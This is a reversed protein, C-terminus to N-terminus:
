FMEMYVTEGTTLDKSYNCFWENWFMEAINQRWSHACNEAVCFRQVPVNESDMWTYSRFIGNLTTKMDEYVLGQSELVEKLGSVIKESGIMGDETLEAPTMDFEGTLVFVPIDSAVTTQNGTLAAAAFLDSCVEAMAKTMGGGNSQGTIYMRSRDINYEECLQEVMARVFKEEHAVNLNDESESTKWSHFPIGGDKQPALSGTPCVTIFNKINGYKWWDGQRMGLLGDQGFGHFYIVLPLAEEGTYGDPLSVYWEREMDDVIITERILRSDDMTATLMNSYPSKTGSRYFSHLFDYAIQTFAPDTYQPSDPTVRVQGVKQDYTMLNSSYPDQNYCYGDALETRVDTCDNAAKFYEILAENEEGLFWVPVPVEKNPWEEFTYGNADTFCIAGAADLEDQEINGAGDVVVLSAFNMPNELAFHVAMNGGAGYGIWRWNWEDTYLYKRFGANNNMDAFATAMYDAESAYDGWAQDKPQLVFLIMSNEEKDAMDIWGSEMLFEATDVGDPVVIYYPYDCYQANAPIYAMYTRESGDSLTVSREYLGSYYVKDIDLWDIDDASIGAEPFQKVELTAATEAFAATTLMMCVFLVWAIPRALKKM